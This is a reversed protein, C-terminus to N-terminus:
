HELVRMGASLSTGAPVSSGCRGLVFALPPATLLDTAVGRPGNVHVASVLQRRALAPRGCPAPTYLPHEHRLSGM